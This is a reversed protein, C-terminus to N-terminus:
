LHSDVVYLRTETTDFMFFTIYRPDYLSPKVCFSYYGCGFANIETMEKYLARSKNTGFDVFVMDYIKSNSDLPLEVWDRKFWLGNNHCLNNHVPAFKGKNEFKYIECIYWEGIAESRFQKKELCEGINAGLINPIVDIYTYSRECSMTTICVFIALMLNSLAFFCRKLAM